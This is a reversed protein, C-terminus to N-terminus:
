LRTFWPTQKREQGDRVTRLDYRNCQDMTDTANFQVETVHIIQTQSLRLWLDDLITEVPGVALSGVM